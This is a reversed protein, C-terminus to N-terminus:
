MNEHANKSLNEVNGNDDSANDVELFYRDEDDIAHRPVTFPIPEPGLENQYVKKMMQGNILCAQLLISLIMRPVIKFLM